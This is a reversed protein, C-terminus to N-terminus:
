YRPDNCSPRNPIRTRRKRREADAVRLNHLALCFVLGAMLILVAMHGMQEWVSYKPMRELFPVAVSLIFIATSALIQVAAFVFAKTETM